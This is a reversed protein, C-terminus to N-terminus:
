CEQEAFLTEVRSQMRRTITGSRLVQQELRRLPWIGIVSNCVFVEDASQIDDLNIAREDTALEEDVACELLWRRMVGAVGGRVPPTVLTGDAVLFINTFTGEAVHGGADRMLGEQVGAAAVERAALVQELRNLHKLGGLAPHNGLVTRCVIADIGEEAQRSTDALPKGQLIRTVRTEDAAPPQYARGGSGRTIILKLMGNGHRHAARRIEGDIEATDVPIDLVQLGKLLRERHYHWLPLRGGVLRMTEFVGDGYALGRDTAAVTTSERGNIWLM